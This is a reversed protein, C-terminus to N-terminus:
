LPSKRTETPSLPADSYPQKRWDGLNLNLLAGSLCMKPHNGKAGVVTLYVMASFTFLRGM